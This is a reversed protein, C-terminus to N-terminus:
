RSPLVSTSVIRLFLDKLDIPTQGDKPVLALMNQFHVELAALDAVQDRM